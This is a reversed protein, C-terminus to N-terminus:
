CDLDHRLSDVKVLFDTVDDFFLLLKNSSLRDVTLSFYRDITTQEFEFRIVYPEQHIILGAEINAQTIRPRLDPLFGYLVDLLNDGPLKLHLALPMLLQICKPNAQRILGQLDIEAAGVPMRHLLPLLNEVHKLKDVVM